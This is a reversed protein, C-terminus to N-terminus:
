SNPNGAVRSISSWLGCGHVASSALGQMHYSVRDTCVTAVRQDKRCLRVTFIELINEKGCVVNKNRTQHLSTEITKTYTRIHLCLQCFPKGLECLSSYTINNRGNLIAVFTKGEERLRNQHAHTGTRYLQGYVFDVYLSCTNNM